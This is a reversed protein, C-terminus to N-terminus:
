YFRHWFSWHEFRLKFQQELFSDFRDDPEPHLLGFLTFKFLWLFLPIILSLGKICPHIYRLTKFNCSFKVLNCIIDFLLLALHCYWSLIQGFNEIAYVLFLPGKSFFGEILVNTVLILLTKFSHEYNFSMTLGWEFTQQDYWKRSLSGRLLHLSLIM